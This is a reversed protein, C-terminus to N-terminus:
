ATPKDDTAPEDSSEAIPEAPVSESEAVTDAPAEETVEASVSEVVPAQAPAQKAAAAPATPKPADPFNEPDVDSAEIERKRAEVMAPACFLTGDVFETVYGEKVLYRLDGKLKTLKEQTEAPVPEPAVGEAPAAPPVLGLHKEGLESEKIMPNTEIYAILSALSDSFSQGPVRFRRKVACVYSIGKSGKKFITFSERRLRGRLANATDLPFRRQAALAGEVARRIETSAPINELLKGPFRLQEVSRVVRNRAETLLYQRAEELSDFAPLVPAAPAAAEAPVPAPADAPALADAEPADVAPTTAAETNEVPAAVAVPEAGEVFPAASASAKPAKVPAPKVTYRTTKKMKELWQAVVEPDRVSEIKTKYAELPMRVNAAHHQALISNYLHYNPPALLTGTITCRNVVQFNGKPPDVEVEATDFFNGLHKELVHAIAADETEFPVGDPVSIFFPAPKVGPTAPSAGEASAPAGPRAGPQLRQVVAVFRENKEVVSKAIYFLEFTRCSKRIADALIKFSGDEPYFTVGFFPSIYPGVPERPPGRFDGRYGGQGGGGERRPGGPGAGPGDRREFRPREGTRPGGQGGGGPGPGAYGGDRRPPQEGGGGGAPPVAGGETAPAPTPRKFDRRDRRVAADGGGGERRPRDDRRDPRDGRPASGPAGGGKDQSWSTGFSFGQLQSLDLKNLGSNSEPTQPPTTEDM